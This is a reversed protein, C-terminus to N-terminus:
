TREPPNVAINSRKLESDAVSKMQRELFDVSEALHPYISPSPGKSLGYNITGAIMM